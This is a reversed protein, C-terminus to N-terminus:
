RLVFTLQMDSPKCKRFAGELIIKVHDFDERNCGSIIVRGDVGAATYFLPAKSVPSGSLRCHCANTFNIDITANMTFTQFQFDVLLSSALDFVALLPRGTYVPLTTM